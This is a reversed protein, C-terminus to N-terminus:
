VQRTVLIIWPFRHISTFKESNRGLPKFNISVDIFYEGGSGNATINLAGANPSLFVEPLVPRPITFVPPSHEASSLLAGLSVLTLITLLFELKLRPRFTLMM